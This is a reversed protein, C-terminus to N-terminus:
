GELRRDEWVDIKDVGVNEDTRERPVEDLAVWDTGVESLKESDLACADLLWSEDLKSDEKLM